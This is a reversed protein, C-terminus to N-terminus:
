HKDIKKERSGDRHTERNLRVLVIKLICKIKRIKKREHIVRQPNDGVCSMWICNLALSNGWDDRADLINITPLHLLYSTIPKNCSHLFYKLIYLTAGCGCCKIQM